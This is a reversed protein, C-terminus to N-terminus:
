GQRWGPQCVVAVAIRWSDDDRCRLVYHADISEILSGDHRVRDVATADLFATSDSCPKADVAAYCRSHSFNEANLGEFVLKLLGLTAERNPM